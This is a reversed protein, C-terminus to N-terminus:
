DFDWIEKLEQLEQHLAILEDKTMIKPVDIQYTKDFDDTWISFKRGAEFNYCRPKAELLMLFFGTKEEMLQGFYELDYVVDMPLEIEENPLEIIYDEITNPFNYNWPEEVINNLIKDEIGEVEVGYLEGDKDYALSYETEGCVWDYTIGEFNEICGNMKMIKKNM